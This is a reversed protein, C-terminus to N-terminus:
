SRYMPSSGWNSNGIGSESYFPLDKIRLTIAIDNQLEAKLDELGQVKSAEASWELVDAKILTYNPDSRIAVLQDRITELQTLKDQVTAIADPYNVTLWNQGVVIPDPLYIPIPLSLLSRIRERDASTWPM